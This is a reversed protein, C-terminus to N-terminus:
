MCKNDPLLCEWCIGGFCSMEMSVFVWCVRGHYCLLFLTVRHNRNTGGGSNCVCPLYVLLLWNNLSSCIACIMPL